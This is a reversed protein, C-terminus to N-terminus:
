CALAELVSIGFHEGITPHFYVKARLLISKMVDESLNPLLHLNSLKLRGRLKEIHRYYAYSARDSVRGVVVFKAHPIRKAIYLTAELNKSPDFRSVTVVINEKAVGISPKFRTLDVPPYIVVSRLGGLEELLNATWKSNVVIARCRRLGKDSLRYFWERFPQVYFKWFMSSVYKPDVGAGLLVRNWYYLAFGLPYHVVCVDAELPVESAKTNITVDTSSAELRIVKSLYYTDFILDYM